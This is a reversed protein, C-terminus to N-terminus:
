TSNGVVLAVFQIHYALCSALIQKAVECRGIVTLDYRSWHRIRWTITRLRERFLQDVHQQAAGASSLLIGLHRIPDLSTDPFLIGTLPEVGNIAAHSGM